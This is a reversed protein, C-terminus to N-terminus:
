CCHFKIMSTVYSFVSVSRVVNRTCSVGKYATYVTIRKTGGTTLEWPCPGSLTLTATVLQFFSGRIVGLM